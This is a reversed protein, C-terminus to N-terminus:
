GGARPLDIVHSVGGADPEIRVVAETRDPGVSVMGREVAFPGVGALLNGCNQRDSVLAEDVSVQLFLYDVDTDPASSPSVIAVKSTLPHAGGIGDIQRPDPSGMVSLLLRDRADPDEPLEDAVFYAGKSSGGRMVMCRVGTM